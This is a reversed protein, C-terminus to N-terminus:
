LKVQMALSAIALQRLRSVSTKGICSWAKIDVEHGILPDVPLCRAHMLQILGDSVNKTNKLSEVSIETFTVLM